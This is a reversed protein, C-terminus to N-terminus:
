SSQGQNEQTHLRYIADPKVLSPQEPLRRLLRRTESNEAFPGDNIKWYVSTEYQSPNWRYMSLARTSMNEDLCAPVLSPSCSHRHHTTPSLLLKMHTWHEQSFSGKTLVDAAQRTTNVYKVQNIGEFFGIRIM